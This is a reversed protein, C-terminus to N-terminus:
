KFEVIHLEHDGVIRNEIDEISFDYKKGLVIIQEEIENPLTESRDTEYVDIDVIGSAIFSKGTGSEGTFIWVPRDKKYRATEKFLDMNISYGGCPYYEDGGYQSFSVVDNYLEELDEEDECLDIDVILEKIPKHTYGRFNNVQKIEINAWSAVCWGSGCEGEEYTFEVEYKNNTDIDVGLLTHKDDLTKGYEFDCNHGECTQRFYKEVRMGIIKLKM